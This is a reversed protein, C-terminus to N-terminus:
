FLLGKQAAIQDLADTLDTPRHVVVYRQGTKEWDAQMSLQIVSQKKGPAKTEVMLTTGLVGILMDGTGDTGLKYSRQGDPTQFRGVSYSILKAYIGTRHKWNSLAERCAKKLKGEPTMGSRKSKAPVLVRGAETSAWRMGPPTIDDM